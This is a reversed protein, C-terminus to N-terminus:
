EKVNVKIDKLINKEIHFIILEQDYCNKLFENKNNQYINKMYKKKCSKIKNDYYLAIRRKLEKYDSECNIKLLNIPANHNLLLEINIEKQFEKKIEEKIEKMYNSYNREKNFCSKYGETYLLKIEDNENEKCNDRIFDRIFPLLDFSENIHGMMFANNKTIIICSCTFIGFTIAGDVKELINDFTFCQEMDIKKLYIIKNYSIENKEM